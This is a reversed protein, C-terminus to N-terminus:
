NLAGEWHQPIRRSAPPAFFLPRSPAAFDKRLYMARENRKGVKQMCRGLPRARPGTQLDGESKRACGFSRGCLAAYGVPARGAGWDARPPKNPLESATHAARPSMANSPPPRRYSINSLAPREQAGYHANRGEWLYARNREGANHKEKPSM